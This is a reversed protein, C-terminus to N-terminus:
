WLSQTGLSVVDGSWSLVTSGTDTELRNNDRQASPFSDYIAGCDNFLMSNTKLDNADGCSDM